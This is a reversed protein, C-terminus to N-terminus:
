SCLLCNNSCVPFLLSRRAQTRLQGAKHLTCVEDLVAVCLKEVEEKLQAQHSETNIMDHVCQKGRKFFKNCGTVPCKIAKNPCYFLHLHVHSRFYLM